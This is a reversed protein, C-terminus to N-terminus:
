RQNLFINADESSKLFFCLWGRTLIHFIPEYGLCPFWTDKLWPKLTVPQMLKGYFRGVLVKDLYNSVDEVKVNLGFVM